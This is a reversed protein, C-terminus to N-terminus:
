GAMGFRTKEDKKKLFFFFFFLFIPEVLRRAQRNFSNTPHVQSQSGGWTDTDTCRKQSQSAQGTTAM